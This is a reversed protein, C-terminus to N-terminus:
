SLPPSLVTCRNQNALLKVPERRDIMLDLDLDIALDDLANLHGVIM